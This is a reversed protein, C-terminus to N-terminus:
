GLMPSALLAVANGIAAPAASRGFPMRKTPERWREPDGLAKAASVVFPLKVGVRDVELTGSTGM